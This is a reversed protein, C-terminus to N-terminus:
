TYHVWLVNFAINFGFDYRVCTYFGIVLYDDVGVYFEVFYKMFRFVSANTYEKKVVNKSTSVKDLLKFSLVANPLTM